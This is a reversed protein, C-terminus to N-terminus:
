GVIDGIKLGMGRALAADFSILTPGRYAAPWWKGEVIETDKPPMAAYTIGRDGSLAWKSDSSVKADRAAVGKLSVIRGRIM